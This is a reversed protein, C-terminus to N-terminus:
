SVLVTMVSSSIARQWLSWSAVGGPTRLASAISVSCKRAGGSSSFYSSVVGFPMTDMEALSKCSLSNLGLLHPTSPRSGWPRASSTAGGLYPLLQSISSRQRETADPCFNKSMGVFM